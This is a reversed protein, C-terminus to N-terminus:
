KEVFVYTTTSMLIAKALRKQHTGVVYTEM